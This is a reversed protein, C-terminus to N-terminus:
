ERNFNNSGKKSPLQELNDAWSRLDFYGNMWHSIIQRTKLSTIFILSYSIIIGFFSIYIMLNPLLFSYDILLYISYGIILIGMLVYGITIINLRKELEERLQYSTYDQYVKKVKKQQFILLYLKNLYANILQIFQITKEQQTTSKYIKSKLQELYRRVERLYPWIRLIQIISLIPFNFAILVRPIIYFENVGYTIFPVLFIGVFISFALLAIIESLYFRHTRQIQFLIQQQLKMLNNNKFGELNNRNEM